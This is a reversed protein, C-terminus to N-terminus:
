RSGPPPVGDRLWLLNETLEQEWDSGLHGSGDVKVLCGPVNAALWERWEAAYGCDLAEEDTISM